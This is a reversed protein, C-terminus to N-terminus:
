QKSVIHPLQMMNEPYLLRVNSRYVTSDKQGKCRQRQHSKVKFSKDAGALPYETNMNYIIETKTMKKEGKKSNNVKEHAYVAHQSTHTIDSIHKKYGLHKINGVKFALYM